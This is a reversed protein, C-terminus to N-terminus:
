ILNSMVAVYTLPFLTLVSVTWTIQVTYAGMGNTTVGFNEEALTIIVAIQISFTLFVACGYFSDYTKGLFLRFKEDTLNPYDSKWREHALTRNYKLRLSAPKSFDHTV